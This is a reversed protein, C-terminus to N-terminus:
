TTSLVAVYEVDPQPYVVYSYWEEYRDELEPWYAVIPETRLRNYM